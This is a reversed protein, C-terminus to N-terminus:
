DTMHASAGSDLMWQHQPLKGKGQSAAYAEEVEEDNSPGDSEPTSSRSEVAAHAKHAPRKSRTRGQRLESVEKALQRVIKRLDDSNPSSRRRPPSPQKQIRGTKASRIARRILDKHPCDASRHGPEECKYCLDRSQAQSPRYTRSFMASDSNERQMQREEERLRLLVDDPKLLSQSDITQRVFRYQIPLASLLHQLREGPLHYKDTPHTVKIEQRLRTLYAWADM